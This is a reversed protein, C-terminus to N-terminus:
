WQAPLFLMDGPHLSVRMPKALYSYHTTKSRPDDPDFTAFPIADGFEEVVALQGDM